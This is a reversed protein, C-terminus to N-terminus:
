EGGRAKRELDEQFAIFDASRAPRKLGGDSREPSSFVRRLRESIEEMTPDAKGYKEICHATVRDRDEQSIQRAMAQIEEASIQTNRHLRLREIFESPTPFDPCETLFWAVTRGFEEPTANAHSLALIFGLAMSESFPKGYTKLSAHLMEVDRCVTKAFDQIEPTQNAPLM